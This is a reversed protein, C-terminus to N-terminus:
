ELILLFHRDNMQYRVIRQYVVYRTVQLEDLKNRISGDGDAARDSSEYLAPMTEVHVLLSIQGFTARRRSRM